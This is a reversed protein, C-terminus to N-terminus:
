SKELVWFHSLGLSRLPTRELWQLINRLLRGPGPFRAIINDYAGFIITREVIVVPLDQFLTELDHRSYIRVHPALRDRLNRPLYNVGFVNGFHYHNRWYIGHTEFPYGRNPVFIVMRGGPRLVRVMECVAARDDNVHELVEHSLALDVSDDPLPLHEGVGCIISVNAVTALSEQAQAARDFDLELGIIRAAEPALHEVYMGVGCGNELIREMRREGAAQQIMMLRRQQGARWVYSPEGCRAAKESIM